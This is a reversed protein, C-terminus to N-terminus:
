PPSDVRGAAVSVPEIVPRTSESLLKTVFRQGESIREVEIAISEIAEEVRALRQDSAALGQTARSLGGMKERHALWMKLMWGSVAFVIAVGLVRTLEDM